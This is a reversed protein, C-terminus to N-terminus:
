KPLLSTTDIMKSIKKGLLTIIQGAFVGGLGAFIMLRDNSADRSLVFISVLMGSFCSVVIQLLCTKLEELFPKSKRLMIYRVIGGWASMGVIALIIGHPISIIDRAQAVGMM